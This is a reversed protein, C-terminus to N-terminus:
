ELCTPAHTRLFGEMRSFYETLGAEPVGGNSIGHNVGELIWLDKPGTVSDYIEQVHEIPFKIDISGHMYFVPGDYNLIKKDNEFKGQSLFGGPLNVTSFAMANHRMSTWAAEMFLACPQDETSIVQEVGPIGGLSNAYVILKSPDVANPRLTKYAWRSDALFEDPTGEFPNLTFFHM